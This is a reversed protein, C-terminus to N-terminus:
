SKSKNYALDFIKDWSASSYDKYEQPDGTFYLQLRKCFSLSSKSFLNPIGLLSNLLSALDEIDIKRGNMWIRPPYYTVSEARGKGSYYFTRCGELCVYNRGHCCNNMTFSPEYDFDLSLKRLPVQLSLYDHAQRYDIYLSSKITDQRSEYIDKILMLVIDQNLEPIDISTETITNDWEFLKKFYESKNALINKHLKYIMGGIKVQIDSEVGNEFM